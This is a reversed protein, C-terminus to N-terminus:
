LKSSSSYNSDLQFIIACPSARFPFHLPFQRISHTALVRWMVESCPTVLMIVASACVEAALLRSFQRGQRNLHVRENRRFVSDPKQAHAVEHWRAEVYQYYVVMLWLLAYLVPSFTYVLRKIAKDSSSAATRTLTVESYEGGHFCLFKCLEVPDQCHFTV